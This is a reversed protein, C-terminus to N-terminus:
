NMKLSISSTSTSCLATLVGQRVSTPIL